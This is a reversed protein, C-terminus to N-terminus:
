NRREIEANLTEIIWDLVAREDGTVYNRDRMADNLQVELQWRAQPKLLSVYTDKEEQTLPCKTDVNM